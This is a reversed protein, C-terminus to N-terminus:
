VDVLALTVNVSVNETSGSAVDTVTCTMQGAADDDAGLTASFTTTAATPSTAGIRVDGDTLDWSYAYSGGGGHPTVTVSPSTVSGGFGHSARTRSVETASIDVSFSGGTGGSGSSGSFFGGMTALGPLMM